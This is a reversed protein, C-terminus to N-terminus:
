FKDDEEVIEANINASTNRAYVKERADELGV